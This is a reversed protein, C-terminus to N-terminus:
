NQLKQMKVTVLQESRSINSMFWLDLRLSLSSGATGISQKSLLPTWDSDQPEVAMDREDKEGEIRISGIAKGIGNSM